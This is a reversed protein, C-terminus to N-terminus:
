VPSFASFATRAMRVVRAPMREGTDCVSASNATCLHFTSTNRMLVIVGFVLMILEAVPVEAVIAAFLVVRDDVRHVTPRVNAVVAARGTIRALSINPMGVPIRVIFLRVPLLAGNAPINVPVRGFRMSGVASVLDACGAAHLIHRDSCEGMTIHIKGGIDKIFHLMPADAIVAAVIYVCRLMLEGTRVICAFIASLGTHLALERVVKARFQFVTLIPM